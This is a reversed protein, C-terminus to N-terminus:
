KGGSGGDGGDGSGGGVLGREFVAELIPYALAYADLRADRFNDHVVFADTPQARDGLELLKDLYVPLPLPSGTRWGHKPWAINSAPASTQAFALWLDSVADAMARDKPTFTGGTSCAIDGTNFPFVIEGGHGVGHPEGRPDEPRLAEQLYSFYYRFATPRTAHNTHKTAIWRAQMTFLMDRLILGGFRARDELEAPDIEPDGRYYGKLTAMLAPDVENEILTLIVAPDLHFAALVSQEDSTSGLLLPLKQQDGAEFVDRIKRPVVEDGWVACPSLSPIPLQAEKTHSRPIFYEQFMSEDVGRLDSISPTPGLKWARTAVDAGLAIAKARSHEPIAYASQAIGKHFLGTARPSAFLALVSVAGASQGFITVNGPDGGFQSINDRVWELAAIQDLMGFNVPGGRYERELAPHAFFGLHGLRYNFTVVVAGKTALPTGDYMSTRGEGIQFAGGHIWVMVPRAIAAGLATHHTWVNLFLCDESMTDVPESGDISEFKPQPCSAGFDHALRVGDWAPMPQPAAWRRDGTPPAAYPVGKFATVGDKTVGEIQGKNTQVIM